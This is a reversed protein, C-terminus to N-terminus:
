TQEQEKLQVLKMYTSRGSGEVECLHEEATAGHPLMMPASVRHHEDVGEVVVAVGSLYAKWFSRPFKETSEM